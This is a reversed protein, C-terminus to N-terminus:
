PKIDTKTNAEARSIEPHNAPAVHLKSLTGTLIWSQQDGRTLVFDVGNDPSATGDMRYIGDRSELKGGSLQWVGKKVRLDGTFRHVPLPGAAGPIEVHTLSGNRMVFRLKGDCNALADQLSGGSTELDFTGDASGAIWADNMLVGVQTLSINQLAGTGHYRVPLNSADITWNGEHTGQLLQGRLAALTIKGRDVALRTAVQTALMKKLTLRAVRLSGRAQLAVLLSPGQQESSSLIRYWPRKAPHPAFWEALNATSLQDAALDFQFLCNPACHRPAAVSGSWHTSGIQASLKQV